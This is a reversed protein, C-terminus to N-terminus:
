NRSPCPGPSFKPCCKKCTLTLANASLSGVTNHLTLQQLCSIGLVPFLCAQTHHVDIYSHTPGTKMIRRSKIADLKENFACRPQRKLGLCRILNNITISHTKNNQQTNKNQGNTACLWFFSSIYTVSQGINAQLKSAFCGRVAQMNEPPKMM